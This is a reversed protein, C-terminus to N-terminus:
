DNMMKGDALFMYGNGECTESFLEESELWEIEKYGREAMKKCLPIYFGEEWKEVQENSLENGDKDEGSLSTSREHYYRGRHKITYMNGDKDTVDGEFMLGDGQLYSLSYLPTIDGHTYGAETLEEHIYERLDDQLFPYDVGNNYENRAKDKAEQTLEDFSYLQYEKTITKM